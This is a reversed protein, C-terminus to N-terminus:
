SAGAHHIGDGRACALCAAGRELREDGEALIEVIVRQATHAAAADMAQPLADSQSPASAQRMRGGSGNQAGPVVTPGAAGRRESRCIM